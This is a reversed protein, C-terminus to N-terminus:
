VIAQNPIKRRNPCFGHLERKSLRALKEGMGDEWPLLLSHRNFILGSRQPDVITERGMLLYHNGITISPCACASNSRPVWYFIKGYRIQFVGNGKRKVIEETKLLYKEWDGTLERGLVHVKIASFFLLTILIM